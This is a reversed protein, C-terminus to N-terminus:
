HFVGVAEALRSMQQSLSESAASSQEVLAANQQTVQDIHGIAQAVQAIGATQETTATTIEAIMVSVRGAQAVIDAITRGAAGVERAGSEAREVSDAILTRIEKAAEASRQALGRVEGAVVAFGRGQEGARAAEVAANLALINTQFAIADIVGVIEAIKRSRHTIDDMTRVVGAVADGGKTATASAADSLESATRATAANNRVTATMQEMSAATQEVSAAAQETRASLDNNGQAIEATATRALHVQGTVDDIIWRFMLGVQGITRMTMGIEDVRDMHLAAQTDGSAVRLAQDRMQELPTSIQSQLWWTAAAFCAAASGAFELLAPGALGLLGACAIVAPAAVLAALRLRWRVPMTQGWSRWRMAGTHSVLGKCFRLGGAQGARFRAYLAEAAAVEDRGPRTRVSMYGVHRGGRVVPMANARVWYHDGDKRRNKVLATWPEGGGLTAWMDAFAEAPMDPHRVVNHPQGELEERTFGSAAVFADNAYTIRSDTDTTSMLTADAPFDFERQTVPLNARM